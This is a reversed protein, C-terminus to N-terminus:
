CTRCSRRPPRTRTPSSRGRRGQAAVDDADYEELLLPARYRPYVDNLHRGADSRATVHTLELEPHRYVLEAALAGAFGAAGLVAVRSPM